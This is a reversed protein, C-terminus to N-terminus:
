LSSLIKVLNAMLEVDIRGLSHRRLQESEAAPQGPGAERRLYSEMWSAYSQLEGHYSEFAIVLAGHKVTGAEPGDTVHELSIRMEDRIETQGGPAPNEHVNAERSIRVQRGSGYPLVTEERTQWSPSLSLADALWLRYSGPRNQWRTPAALNYAKLLQDIFEGAFVPRPLDASDAMRDGSLREIRGGYSSDRREILGILNKRQFLWSLREAALSDTQEDYGFRVNLSSDADIKQGFAASLAQVHMPSLNLPLHKIELSYNPSPVLKTSLRNLAQRLSPYVESSKLSEFDAAM